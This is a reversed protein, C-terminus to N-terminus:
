RSVARWCRYDCFLPVLGDALQSRVFADYGGREAARFAKLEDLLALEATRALTRLLHRELRAMAAPALIAPPHEGALARRAVRLM